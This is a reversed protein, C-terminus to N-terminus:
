NSRCNLLMNPALNVGQKLKKQFNGKVIAGADGTDEQKMHTNETASVTHKTNQPKRKSQFFCRMSSFGTGGLAVQNAIHSEMSTLNIIFIFIFTHLIYVNCIFVFKIKNVVLQHHKVKIRQSSTTHHHM